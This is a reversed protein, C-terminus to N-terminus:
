AASGQIRTWTKDGNPPKRFRRLAEMIGRPTPHVHAPIGNVANYAAMMARRGPASKEFAKAYYERWLRPPNPSV